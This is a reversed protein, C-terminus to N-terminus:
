QETFDYTYVVFLSRLLSIPNDTRANTKPYWSETHFWYEKNEKHELVDGDEMSLFGGVNPIKNQLTWQELLVQEPDMNPIEVTPWLDQFVRVRSIGPWIQYTKIKIM